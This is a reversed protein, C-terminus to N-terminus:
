LKFKTRIANEPCVEICCYCKICTNYDIKLNKIARKPCVNECSMCKSCRTDDIIPIRSIQLKYLIKAVFEVVSTRLPFRFPTAYDDLKEFEGIIEITDPNFLGEEKAIRLLPIDYPGIGAMLACVYDIAYGNNGAIIRKPSFKKGRADTIDLCDVIIMDPPRIDYIELLVKSFDDVKPFLAHIYPKLGGPIIGFQNKLAVSMTTLEHTKFKPLSILLDCDTIERSVYVEKLLNKQRKIKKMYKGINRFTGCAAESFGCEHAIEQANRRNDPAANDGVIVDAGRALLYAVTEFILRPNTVVGDGPKAVRLMNPKLFVKKRRINAIQLERFIEAISETLREGSKIYVREKM